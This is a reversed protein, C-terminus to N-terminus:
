RTHIRRRDKLKGVMNEVKHRQLYLGTSPL